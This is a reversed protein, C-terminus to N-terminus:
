VRHKCLFILCWQDFFILCLSAGSESQRPERHGEPRFQVFATILNPNTVGDGRSQITNKLFM